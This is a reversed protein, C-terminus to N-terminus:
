KLLSGCVKSMVSIIACPLLNLVSTSGIQGNVLQPQPKWCTTQIASNMPKAM